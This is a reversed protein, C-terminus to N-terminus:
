ANALIGELRLRDDTRLRNRNPVLQNVKLLASRASTEDDIGRHVFRELAHGSEVDLVGLAGYRAAVLDMATRVITQLTRELDLGSTIAFMADILGDRISLDDHQADVM